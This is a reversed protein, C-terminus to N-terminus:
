YKILTKLSISLKKVFFKLLIIILFKLGYFYGFKVNLKIANYSEIFAMYPKARSIGGDRMCIIEYDLFSAKIKEKMHILFEHDGSIKYSKNFLRKKFLSYHHLSGPHAIIMGKLIDNKNWKKGLIETHKTIDNYIKVKASIFNSNDKKVMLKNLCNQNLWYDDGGIFCIWEGNCIRLAKNWADYISKDKKSIIKLRKDKISYLIKLTQDVSGGDMIIVELSTYKQNLCSKICKTITLECNLTAIIISIKNNKISM